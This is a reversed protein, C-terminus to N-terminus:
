QFLEFQHKTRKTSTWLAIRLFQVWVALLQSIVLNDSSSLFSQCVSRGYGQYSARAPRLGLRDLVPQTVSPIQHSPHFHVARCVHIRDNEGM